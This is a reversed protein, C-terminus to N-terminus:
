RRGFGFRLLVQRAHDTLAPAERRFTEGHCSVGAGGCPTALFPHVEGADPGSTVVGFGVIEGVDNIGLATLMYISSSSTALDNLDYSVGDEWLYARPNGTAPGGASISAGVVQGQNNLSIGAGVVDGPLLPIHRIGDESTWIFPQNVLSGPLASTGIVQGRNNIALAANGVALIGPNTTGGFSGLDRVTGDAEWLVAHPGATFGPLITNSCRGSVGVAQGIDNIWLALAVTDGSLPSLQRVQGPRPGWIVAQYDLVQPGTGNLAPRSPCEPDRVLTEAYGAVEGRNNNSGWGSNTGGLSPLARVVGNQWVVAVCQLGTGYACFNESNPDPQATEAGGIVQGSENLIGAGINPGGLGGKGIDTLQGDRWLYAHSTFSGDLASIAVAGNNNVFNGAGFPSGAPGLDTVSYRPQATIALPAALGVGLLTLWAAPAGFLFGSRRNSKNM